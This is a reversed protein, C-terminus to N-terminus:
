NENHSDWDWIFAADCEVELWVLNDRSNGRFDKLRLNGIYTGSDPLAKLSELNLTLIRDAYSFILHDKLDTCEFEYSFGDGDFDVVDPFQYMWTTANVSDLCPIPEPEVAPTEFYPAQNVIVEPAEVTVLVNYIGAPVEENEFHKYINYFKNLEVRVEFNM